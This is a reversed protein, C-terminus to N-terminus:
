SFIMAILEGIRASASHMLMGLGEQVGKEAASKAGKVLVSRAKKLLGREVLPSRLVNLATELIAILQRREIDTLLQEDKPANARSTQEIISDLLSAIAGIKLKVESTFKVAVWQEGGIAVPAIERPHLKAKPKENIAPSLFTQDQSKLFSRLRDAIKSADSKGVVGRMKVFKSLLAPNIGLGNEMYATSSWGLVELVVESLEPIETVQISKTPRAAINRIAEETTDILRHVDEIPLDNM